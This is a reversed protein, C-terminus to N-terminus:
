LWFELGESKEFRFKKLLSEKSSFFEKRTLRNVVFGNSQIEAFAFGFGENFRMAAKNQPHFVAKIEALHLHEFGYALTLMKSHFSVLPSTIANKLVIGVEAIKNDPPSNSELVLSTYGVTEKSARDEVLFYFNLNQDLHSFWKEQELSSIIKDMQFVSKGIYSNRLNRLFEIDALTVRSLKVKSTSMEMKM